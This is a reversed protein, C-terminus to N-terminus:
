GIGICSLCIFTSNNLIMQNENIIFGLVILGVFIFFLVTKVSNKLIKKFM